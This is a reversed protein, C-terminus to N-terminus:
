DVYECVETEGVFLRFNVKGASLEAGGYNGSNSLGGADIADSGVVDEFLELLSTHNTIVGFPFDFIEGAGIGFSKEFFEFFACCIKAAGQWFELTEGAFDAM